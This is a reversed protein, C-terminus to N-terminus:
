LGRVKIAIVKLVAELAPRVAPTADELTKSWWGVAAPIQQTKWQGPGRRGFTPHRVYGSDTQKTDPATTKLRVAAARGTTVSVTVRQGAVQQNLGGSKPLQAIAAQRVLPVLPAAGARLGRTMELKIDRAGAAKLRAGIEQLQKSADAV